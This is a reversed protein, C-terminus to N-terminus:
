TAYATLAPDRATRFADFQQQREFSRGAKFITWLAPMKAQWMADRDLRETNSNLSRVSDHLQKIKDRSEQGLLNYEEISEPRIYTFNLFNRSSPLYPSPTLPAVPESAHLPNIMMFDAGTKRKANQLLQALDVYDGIGWSESSRISYLQAMWGWPRTLELDRDFTIRKPACILTARTSRRGANVTLTHYGVPIDVPLIISTKTIFSGQFPVAASGDGANVRLSGTFVRGDELTITGTPSELLTTNVQVVSEAGQIHLITPPILRSYEQARVRRLSERIKEDNSADYGMSQIISILVDDSAEHYDHTQGIYSTSIGLSNALRILPRALRSDSETNHVM